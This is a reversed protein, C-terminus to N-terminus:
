GHTNAKLAIECQELVVDVQQLLEKLNNDQISKQSSSRIAKDLRELATDFRAQELDPM